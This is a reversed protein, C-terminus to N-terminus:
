LEARVVYAGPTLFPVTFRGEADSVTTKAGQPGTATVTVGPVALGQADVIRGSVSGSTEQAAALGAVALAFAMLLASIRAYM